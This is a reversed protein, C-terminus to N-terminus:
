LLACPSPAPTHTHMYSNIHVQAPFSAPRTRTHARTCSFPQTQVHPHKCASRHEGAAALGM